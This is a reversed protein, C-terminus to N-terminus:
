LLETFFTNGSNTLPYPCFHQKYQLLETEPKFIRSIDSYRQSGLTNGALIDLVLDAM